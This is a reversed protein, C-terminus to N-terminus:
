EGFNGYLLSVQEYQRNNTIANLRYANEQSHRNVLITKIMIIGGANDKRGILGILLSDCQKKKHM